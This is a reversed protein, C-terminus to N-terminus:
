AGGVRGAGATGADSEDRVKKGVKIKKTRMKKVQEDVLKIGTEVAQAAARQLDPDLTTYIRYSQDNLENENFKSILQDRVMDVFYPADSAEVNPPALKLPVAKAKDAQERTIAHTEVMSELVLNRRELAREPHRYPSLYSPRQILGALLAAEPLTIDKLDKNFYAKSAEAFGSIAFSGRQGLDVWNAYFEFIQQKTFKQELEEAILMETLKRKITKEPTLFFGRALQQTLTSGGQERRQHVVDGWVAEATRVFNVGSHEFFRRDEIALVAQVMMPPIDNYKVMQRKSRQEADFLATVLQPELEYASLDTGNSTIQDVQGDHISIRAPEPSHYSESGPTIEIGDKVLRFTGLKSQGDKDSYGARRLETEIERVAIKEGTGCRRRCPM